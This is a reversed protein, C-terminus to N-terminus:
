RLNIPNVVLTYLKWRYNKWEPILHEPDEFDFNRGYLCATGTKEGVCVTRDPSTYNRDRQGEQALIYVRVERVETRIQEADYAAINSTYDKDPIGDGNTDVLRVYSVQMDAVCDLVPVVTQYATDPDDVQAAVAKYLLGTGAACHFPMDSASAPPAVYYDTRNFPMKPSTNPDVGYVISTDSRNADYDSLHAKTTTFGGVNPGSTLSVLTRSTPGQSILIVNDDNKLDDM